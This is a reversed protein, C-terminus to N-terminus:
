TVNGNHIIRQLALMRLITNLEFVTNSLIRISCASIAATDMVEIFLAECKFFCVSCAFSSCSFHTQHYFSGFFLCFTTERFCSFKYLHLYSATYLFRFSKLNIKQQKCANNGFTAIFTKHKINRKYTKITDYLSTSPNIM